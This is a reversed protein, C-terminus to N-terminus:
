KFFYPIWFVLVLLYGLSLAFSLVAGVAFARRYISAYVVVNWLFIPFLLFSALEQAPLDEGVFAFGQVLLFRFFFNVFAVVAGAAALATLTQTLREDHGLLRAALAAVLILLAAASIGIGAAGVVSHTALKIAFEILVFLGLSVRLLLSSHPLVEPGVDSRLIGVFNHILPPLKIKM